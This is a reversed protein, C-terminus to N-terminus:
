QDLRRTNTESMPWMIALGIAGYLMIYYAPALPHGLTEILWASVLPATGGALALTISYAFSMSTVRSRLPFIEVVMAGQMGLAMGIPVAVLIQGIIFAGPEGYLMMQLAPYILAMVVVTLLMMQRRRGIKDSLWGGLPKSILVVILTLTNALLFESGHATALSKRREVAYTFTLYYAANTMAVIGFTQIIPLWDAILSPLLKPRIMRAKLGEATEIIGRRLLYGVILFVVSGVFPIRWGWTTVQDPPLWANVLWATGSGLIFGITTGAATSSSVLGRMLPSSGETTYVMSGTFEGGLSFGQILRMLVLLLPAAVGIQEYTPLLGLILTAGGMLAISLTLLARRGIRDGVRGLVLSGIPRALFGLAFTGFTLFQQATHSSQTFFQKGIDSAFYGYVAFDFWELVNGILGALATRLASQTPVPADAM